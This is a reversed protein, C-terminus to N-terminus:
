LARGLTMVSVYIFSGFLTRRPQLLKGDGFAILIDMLLFSETWEAAKPSSPLALLLCPSSGANSGIDWGGNNDSKCKYPFGSTM